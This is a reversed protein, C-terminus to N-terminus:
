ERNAPKAFNTAAGDMAAFVWDFRAASMAVAARAM